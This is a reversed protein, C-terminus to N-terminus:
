ALQARRAGDISNRQDTRANGISLDAVCLRRGGLAGIHTRDMEM